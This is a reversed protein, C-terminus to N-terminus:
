FGPFGTSAALFVRFSPHIGAEERGNSAATRAGRAKACRKVPMVPRSVIRHRTFEHYWPCIWEHLPDYLSGSKPPRAAIASKM